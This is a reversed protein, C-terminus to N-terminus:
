LGGQILLTQSVVCFLNEFRHGLVKERRLGGLLLLVLGATQARYGCLIAGCLGVGHQTKGITEGQILHDRFVTGKPRAHEPQPQRVFM